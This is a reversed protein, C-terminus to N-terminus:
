REYDNYNDIKRSVESVGYESRGEIGAGDKGTASVFKISTIVPTINRPAKPYGYLVEKM